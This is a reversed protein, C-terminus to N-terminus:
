LPILQLYLQPQGYVNRNTELQQSQVPRCTAPLEEYLGYMLVVTAFNIPNKDLTALNILSEFAPLSNLVIVM